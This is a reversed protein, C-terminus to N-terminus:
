GAGLLLILSLAVQGVVLAQRFRSSRGGMASASEKLSSVLDQRTASIAPALGFFVGTLLTAVFTFGLVRIDPDLQIELPFDAPPRFSGVLRTLGIGLLLGCGGAVLALVLSESFLQRILQGRNAGIALRLSIEKRRTAFRALLLGAVNACALLLILGVVGFMLAMFGAFGSRMIPHLGSEAERFLAVSTGTNSDPYEEALHALLTNTSARAQEPTVGPKLRGIIPNMWHSGRSELLNSGPILQQQMMLPVWLGTGIGSMTGLFGEKTVGVITFPHSNLVINKGIIDPAAGFRRQWLGHSLVAVAHAGPTQDEEPLFGRGLAVDVGLESFYNGSVISGWVRENQEGTSLHFPRIAEAVLGEFVDSKDRVDVYDPYSFSGYKLGSAWSIYLRVLREPEKVDATRFLLADAISFTASNAGIGLSICLVAAVAFGPNQRLQRFGYRIDRFFHELM